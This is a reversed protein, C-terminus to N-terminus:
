GTGTNDYCGTGREKYPSIQSLSLPFSLFAPKLLRNSDDVVTVILLLLLTIPAAGARIPFHAM